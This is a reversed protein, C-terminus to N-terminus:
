RAGEAVYRTNLDPRTTDMDDPVDVPVAALLATADDRGGADHAARVLDAATTGPRALLTALAPVTLARTVGDTAVLLRDGPRLRVTALQPNATGPMGAFRTLMSDLRRQAVSGVEVAGARVLQAAHTHEETLRRLRGRRLLWCSSDGLHALRLRRDTVVVATLTSGPRLPVPMGDTALGRVRAQAAAVAGVLDAGARSRSGGARPHTAGPRPHTVGGRPTAGGPPVTDLPRGAADLARGAADLPRGAADLPRTSADRIRAAGPDLAEVLGALAADAAAAGDLTGGMGDAVALLLGSGGTVAVWRDESAARSRGTRSAVTVDVTAM